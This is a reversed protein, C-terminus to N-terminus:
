AMLHYGSIIQLMLGRLFLHCPSDQEQFVRSSIHRLIFCSCEGWMQLICHFRRLSACMLLDCSQDRCVETVWWQQVLPMEVKKKSKSVPASPNKVTVCPTTARLAGSVGHYYKFCIKTEVSFSGLVSFTLPWLSSVRKKWIHKVWRTWM